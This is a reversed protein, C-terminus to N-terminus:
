RRPPDAYIPASGTITTNWRTTFVNNVASAAYIRTESTRRVFDFRLYDNLSQEIIVGQMQYQSTMTGDFKVQVEFDTNNAPQLVRAGNAGTSWMDHNSGAPVSLTLRADQTGAGTLALTSPVGPNIFTWIGTNLSPANFDDSVIISAPTGLVVLLWAARASSPEGTTRYAAGTNQAATM